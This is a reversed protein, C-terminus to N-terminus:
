QHRGGMNGVRWSLGTEDSLLAVMCRAVSQGWVERWTGGGCALGHGAELDPGEMLPVLVEVTSPRDLHGLEGALVLTPCRGGGPGAVAWAGDGGVAYPLLGASALLLLCFELTSWRPPLRWHAGGRGALLLLQRGLHSLRGRWPPCPTNCGTDESSCSSSSSLLLTVERAERWFGISIM